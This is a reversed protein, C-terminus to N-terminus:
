NKKIATIRQSGDAYDIESGLFVYGDTPADVDLNKFVTFQSIGVPLEISIKKTMTSYQDVYKRIINREPRQQTNGQIAPERIGDLLTNASNYSYICDSWSVRSKETATTIKLEITGMTTTAGSNIYNTEVCDKEEDLSEADEGKKYVKFSLDKIWCFANYLPVSNNIFQLSPLLVDITVDGNPLDIGALPIKYGDAGIELDWRVNNLIESETNFFMYGKQTRKLPVWFGTRTNQWDQGNWYKGGIGVVFGLYPASYTSNQTKPAKPSIEDWAPCIYPRATYKEFMASGDIVLYSDTGSCFDLTYGTNLGFVKYDQPSTIPYLVGDIATLHFSLAGENQQSIMIYRDWDINSQIIMQGYEDVYDDRVCGHEVITGGKDTKYNNATTSSGNYVSHWYKNDYVRHYFTYGSESKDDKYKEAGLIGTGYLYSGRYSVKQVDVKYYFNYSSGTPSFRNTLNEDDFIDPVFEEVPYYNDRVEIKNRIPEITISPNPGKVYTQGLTLESGVYSNIPSTYSSSKRYLSMYESTAGSMRQYDFLYLYEGEQIATFGVYKAMEELVEDLKITEDVDEYYFNRESISLHTPLVITNGHYKTRPWYYGLLLGCKDCIQALIDNFTVVTTKGSTLTEFPYNKLTLLCDNAQLEFDEFEDRYDASLIMPNLWGVWVINNHTKDTLYVKVEQPTSPLIDELYTDAVVNLTLRSYRIPDFPTDSEDYRVVCPNTSSLEIETVDEGNDKILDVWYETCGSQGPMLNPGKFKARYNM